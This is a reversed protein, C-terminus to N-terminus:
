CFELNWSVYFLWSYVNEFVSIYIYKGYVQEIKWIKLIIILIIILSVYKRKKVHNM